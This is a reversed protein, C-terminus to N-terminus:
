IEEKGAYKSCDVQEGEVRTGNYEKGFGDVCFSQNKAQDYQTIRFTGDSNCEPVFLDPNTICLALAEAKCKQCNPQDPESQFVEVCQGTKRSIKGGATM